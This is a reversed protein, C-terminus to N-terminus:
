DIALLFHDFVQDLSAEVSAALDMELGLGDTQLVEGARLWGDMEPAVGLKALDTAVEDGSAVAEMADRSRRDGRALDRNIFAFIREGPESNEGLRRGRGFFYGIGIM